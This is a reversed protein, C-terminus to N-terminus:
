GHMADISSTFSFLVVNIAEAVGKMEYDHSQRLSQSDSYFLVTFKLLVLLIPFQMPTRSM